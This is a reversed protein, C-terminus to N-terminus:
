CGTVITTLGRSRRRVDALASIVTVTAATGCSQGLMASMAPGPLKQSRTSARGAAPSEVFSAADRSFATQGASASESNDARHGVTRLCDM